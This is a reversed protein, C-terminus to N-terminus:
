GSLVWDDGDPVARTKIRALDSGGSPESIAIAMKLCGALL